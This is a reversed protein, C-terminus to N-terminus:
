FVAIPNLASGTAGPVALPATTLLFEWRKREAAARSVDELDCNDLIPVGMAVLILTHVPGRMGEVGTPRVEGASDSGLVAIDRSKLWRASSAHMGALHDAAPWPGKDARRAWRGTRVLVIDGAEVKIGAYKEWADFDEPYIPTGPELYPVGKLRPIDVLIGRSFLGGKARYISLRGAGKATVASRPIGNYMQDKYFYHCLADMHTHALGHHAVSFSDSHSTVDATQGHAIMEHVFPRPNDAATMTEADHSLSVTMGERVLQAAAKRKAPTILNLAGLEDDKGWRGWNSLEKMWRDFEAQSVPRPTQALSPTLVLALLGVVALSRCRLKRTLQKM